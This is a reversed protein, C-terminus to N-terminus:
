CGGNIQTAAYSNAGQLVLMGEGGKVLNGTGDINSTPGQVLATAQGVNFTAINGAALVTYDRNTTVTGFGAANVGTGSGSGGWIGLGGGNMTVSSYPSINLDPNGVVIEGGNINTFGTYSSSSSTLLLYGTGTKTLSNGVAQTTSVGGNDTIAGTFMATGPLNNTTIQITRNAGNATGNGLNSLNIQGTFVTDVGSPLNVLMDYGVNQAQVGGMFTIPNPISRSAFMNGANVNRGTNDPQLYAGNMTITGGGFISSNQVIVPTGNSITTGGSYTQPVNM